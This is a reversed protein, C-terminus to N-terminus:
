TTSALAWATSSLCAKEVLDFFRKKCCPVECGKVLMAFVWSLFDPLFMAQQTKETIM